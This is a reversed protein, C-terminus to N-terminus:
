SAVYGVPPSSNPNPGRAAASWGRLRAVGSLRWRRRRRLWTATARGSRPTSPAPSAASARAPTIRRIPWLLWRHLGWILGGRLGWAPVSPGVGTGDRYLRSDGGRGVKFEGVIPANRRPLAM